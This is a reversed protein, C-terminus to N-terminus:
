KGKKLKQWFGKIKETIDALFSHHSEVMEKGFSNHLEELLERQRPTLKKPYVIKIIAILDGKQGTTPSKVGEGPLVIKEGERTFPKLEVEQEGYLTPIKVKGGLLANTFFIPLELYLNLGDRKFIKSDKVRFVLYLDGRNGKRGENGRGKVRMRMGTDVGAPIDVKVKDRAILYGSGKCKKCKEVVKVGKGGCDPCTQAMQFFGQKFYVQGRGGCTPCPAVKSAGTGKCLPCLKYYTIEVDRCVGYVAEEFDLIVEIVRDLPYPLDGEEEEFGGGFFEDFFGGFFDSFDFGGGSGKEGGGMGGRELGEKGYIDYIRRKEEDILVQYAENIEKFKEECEPKKCIDPHYKRALRRYARKIEEKTASREVGLIQYYDV